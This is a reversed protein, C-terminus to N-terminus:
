LNPVLVAEDEAVPEIAAIGYRAQLFAITIQQFQSRERNVILGLGADAKGSNLFAALPLISNFLWHFIHGRAPIPAMLNFYPREAPLGRIRYPRARVASVWNHQPRTTLLLGDKIMAGAWGTVFTGGILTYIHDTLQLPQPHSIGLKQLTVPLPAEVLASPLPLDESAADAIPLGETPFLWRRQLGPFRRAAQDTIIYRLSRLTFKAKHIRGKYQLRIM